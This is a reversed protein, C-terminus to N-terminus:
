ETGSTKMGTKQALIMSNKNSDNQLITYLQTNHYRWCQENQETNGQSNTIM